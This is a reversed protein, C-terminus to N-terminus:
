RQDDLRTDKNEIDKAELKRSIHGWYSLRLSIDLENKQIVPACYFYLTLFIVNDVEAMTSCLCFIAKQIGKRKGTWTRKRNYRLNLSHICCRTCGM